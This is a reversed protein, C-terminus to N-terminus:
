AIAIRSYVKSQRAIEVAGFLDGAVLLAIRLVIVIVIDTLVNPSDIGIKVFRDRQFVRLVKKSNVHIHRTHTKLM